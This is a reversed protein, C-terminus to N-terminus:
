VDFLTSSAALCSLTSSVSIDAAVALSKFSIKVRSFSLLTDKVVALTAVTGFKILTSTVM